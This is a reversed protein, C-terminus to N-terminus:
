LGDSGARVGVSGGDHMEQRPVMDEMFIDEELLKEMRESLHLGLYKKLTPRDIYAMELLTEGLLCRTIKQFQLGEQLQEKTIIANNVLFEGFMM